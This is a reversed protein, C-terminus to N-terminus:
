RTALKLAPALLERHKANQFQTATPVLSSDAEKLRAVVVQAEREHGLHVYSAALVCYPTAWQPFEQIVVRLRSIADDFRRDFFHAIGIGANNRRGVRDRPNLRASTEFSAVAEDIHGAYLRTMGHNFWGKAFHPNLEVAQDMMRLSTGFDEGFYALAHIATAVQETDGSFQLARRAYDVARQRNSRRDDVWGNIDLIQLCYAMDALAPAYTPDLAVAQRILSLSRRIKERGGSYIPQARLHLEFATAAQDPNAELERTEARQVAPGISGAVTGVARDLLEFGNEVAEDFRDAWLHLGTVVDVLRVTARLRSTSRHVSGQVQYRASATSGFSATVSLWQFRSLAVLVNEALAAAIERERADNGIATFPIVAISPRPISAAVTLSKTTSSLENAPAAPLEDVHAVFRFGHRPLTRIVLQARGDDGVARRITNIRSTLASDSVARGNWITQFLEDKGILRDRNRVLHILIDFVQPELRVVTDGRRLERRAADLTFGEFAYLVNGAVLM